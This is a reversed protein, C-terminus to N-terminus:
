QSLALRLDTAGVNIPLERAKGIARVGASAVAGGADQWQPYTQSLQRIFPATFRVHDLMSTSISRLHGSLGQTLGEAENILNTEHDKVLSRRWSSLSLRDNDCLFLYRLRTGTRVLDAIQRQLNRMTTREESEKIILCIDSIQESKRFSLIVRNLNTSVPAKRRIKPPEDHLPLELQRSAAESSNHETLLSPRHKEIFGIITQSLSQEAACEVFAVRRAFYGSSANIVPISLEDAAGHQIFSMIDRPDGVFFMFKTPKGLMFRFRKWVKRWDPMNYANAVAAVYQEIVKTTGGILARDDNLITTADTISKSLDIESLDVGQLDQSRLDLDKLEGYRLVNEINLGAIHALDKLQVSESNIINRVIEPDWFRTESM